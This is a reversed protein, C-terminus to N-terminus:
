IYAVYKVKKLNTAFPRYKKGTFPLIQRTDNASLIIYLTSLSAASRRRMCVMPIDPDYPAQYLDLVDEM